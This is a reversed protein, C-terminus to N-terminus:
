AYDTMKGFSENLQEVEILCAEVAEWNMGLRQLTSSALHSPPIHSNGIREGTSSLTDAIHVLDVVPSHSGEDPAHHHAMAARIPTPLNWREALREGAQCHEVGLVAMEAEKFLIGSSKQYDMVASYQEPFSVKLMIRGLDHLLGATFALNQELGYHGALVKATVATRVAHDWDELLDHADQRAGPPFAGLAAATIAINRITYLGLVVCAEKASAIKGSFGYFPSNAIRLIRATLVQDQYIKKELADIDAEGSDIIRMIETVVLSLSPLREVADDVQEM